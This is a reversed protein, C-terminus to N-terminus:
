KNNLHINYFYFYFYFHNISFIFNVQSPSFLDTLPLVILRRCLHNDIKHVSNVDEVDIEYMTQKLASKFISKFINSSIPKYFLTMLYGLFIINILM